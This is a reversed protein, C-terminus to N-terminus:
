TFTTRSAEPLIHALNAANRVFVTVYTYCMYYYGREKVKYINAIGCWRLLDYEMTRIRFGSRATKVGQIRIRPYNKKRIGSGARKKWTHYNKM